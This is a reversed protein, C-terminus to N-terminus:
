KGKSNSVFTNIKKELQKVTKSLQNVTELLEDIKNILDQKEQEAKIAKAKQSAM